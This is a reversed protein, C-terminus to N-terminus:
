LGIMYISGNATRIFAYHPCDDHRCIAEVQSTQLPKGSRYKLVAPKGVHVNIAETPVWDKTEESWTLPVYVPINLDKPGRMYAEWIIMLLYPQLREWTKDRGEILRGALSAQNEYARFWDFAKQETKALNRKAKLAYFGTAGVAAVAAVIVIVIVAFINTM